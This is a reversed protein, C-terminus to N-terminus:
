ESQTIKFNRKKLESIRDEMQEVGSCNKEVANKM